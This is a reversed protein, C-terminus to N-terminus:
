EAPQIPLLYFDRFQDLRKLSASIKDELGVKTEELLAQLQDTKRDAEAMQELLEPLGKELFSIQKEELNPLRRITELDNQLKDTSLQRAFAAPGRDKQAVMYYREISKMASQGAKIARYALRLTEPDDAPPQTMIKRWKKEAPRAPVKLPTPPKAAAATGPGAEASEAEPEAAPGPEPQPTPGDTRLETLPEIGAPSELAANRKDPRIPEERWRGFVLEDAKSEIQHFIELIAIQALLNRAMNNRIEVIERSLSDEGRRLDELSQYFLDARSREVPGAGTLLPELVEKVEKLPMFLSGDPYNNQWDSKQLYSQSSVLSDRLLNLASVMDVRYAAVEEGAATLTRVMFISLLGLTLLGLGAARLKLAKGPQPASPNGPKKEM